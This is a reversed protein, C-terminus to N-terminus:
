INTYCNNLYLKNDESANKYKFDNVVGRITIKDGSKLKSYDGVDKALNCEIDLNYKKQPDMFNIIIKKNEINKIEGTVQIYKRYLKAHIEKTNDNYQIALDIPSIEIPNNEYKLDWSGIDLGKRGKDCNYKIVKYGLGYYEKTGGDKHTETKIAFFPGVGLRSVSIIDITILTLIIIIITFIINIVKNYNKKNREKPVEETMEKELEDELFEIDKTEDDMLVNEDYENTEDLTDFEDLNGETKIKPSKQSLKKM